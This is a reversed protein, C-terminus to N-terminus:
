TSGAGSHPDPRELDQDLVRLPSGLALARAFGPRFEGGCIEIHIQGQDGVFKDGRRDVSPPETAGCRQFSLVNLNM